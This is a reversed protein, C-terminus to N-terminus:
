AAAEKERRVIEAQLRKIQCENFRRCKLVLGWDDYYDCLEFAQQFGALRLKLDALSPKQSGTM